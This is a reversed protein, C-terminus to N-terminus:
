RRQGAMRSQGIQPGIPVHAQVITGSPERPEVTLTGGVLMAREVMGFIGLGLGSIDRGRTSNGSLGSGDDMIFLKVEDATRELRLWAHGARAHKSVNTLAEQAIRYLVLEVEPVLRERAGHYELEVVLGDSEGFRQALGALAERLGLDDLAPPRLELALRRVSEIAEVTMPELSEALERVRADSAGKFTAIRLLQAFLVQATDDHLERAIRRREGEQADIVKTALDRLRGQDQELESLTDNFTEVMRAIQPDTFPGPDARAGLDGDRVAITLEELSRLPQFAARLALLNVVLSLVIGIIVFLLILSWRSPADHNRVATATVYTGATAGFVVVTVNAALVKYLLPISRLRNSFRELFPRSSWPPAQESM